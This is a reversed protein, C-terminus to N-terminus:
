EVIPSRGHAFDEERGSGEAPAGTAPFGSLAGHLPSFAAEPAYVPLLAKIDMMHRHFCAFGRFAGMRLSFCVKAIDKIRAMIPGPEPAPWPPDEGEERHVGMLECLEAHEKYLSHLKLSKEDSLMHCCATFFWATCANVADRDGELMRPTLIKTIDDSLRFDEVGRQMIYKLAPGPGERLAPFELDDRPKIVRITEVRGTMNGASREYEGARGSM